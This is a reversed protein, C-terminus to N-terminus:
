PQPGIWQGDRRLPHTICTDPVHPVNGWCLLADDKPSRPSTGTETTGPSDGPPVVVLRHEWPGAPVEENTTDVVASTSAVRRITSAPTTTAAAESPAATPLPVSADISIPHLVPAEAARNPVLWSSLVGITVVASVAANSVVALPTPDFPWSWRWWPLGAWWDKLHDRLRNRARHVQM